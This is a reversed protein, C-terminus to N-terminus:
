RLTDAAAAEREAKEQYYGRSDPQALPDEFGVPVDLTYHRYAALAALLTIVILGIASIRWGFLNGDDPASFFPSPSQKV